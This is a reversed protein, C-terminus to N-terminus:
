RRCGLTPGTVACASVVCGGGRANDCLVLEPLNAGHDVGIHHAVILTLAAAPPLRPGPRTVAAPWQVLRRRRTAALLQLVGCPAHSANCCWSSAGHPDTRAHVRALM